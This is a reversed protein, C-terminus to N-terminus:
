KKSHKASIKQGEGQLTNSCINTDGRETQIVNNKGKLVNGKIEQTSPEHTNMETEIGGGRFRIRRLTSGRYIFAVVVLGVVILLVIWFTEGMWFPQTALETM